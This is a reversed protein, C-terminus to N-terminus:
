RINSPQQKRPKPKTELVYNNLRDVKLNQYPHVVISTTNTEIVAPGTITNGPRLGYGNYIPTPVRERSTSWYINRNKKRANEDIVSNLVEAKKFAPKASIASAKCRFTVIELRAHTLTSGQGYRNEYECFFDRRITDLNVDQTAGSEIPIEVENIQGYHRVDVSFEMKCTSPDVKDEFLLKESRKQLNRLEEQIADKDFPSAMINVQENVHLVDASAAGFACWVAATDGQPIIVEKVGLERATVGMHVPGAGGFAFITFERPDLGKQVTMKRILDAMQFEAITAIGAALEYLNMHLKTALKRLADIAAQKNLKVTGGAFHEPDLYGLVLDADTTTPITGGRDYCVPGPDAGASQPGVRLSNTAPEIWVQSGGGTGLTQVDVKPLFYEYQNVLNKYSVVPAQNLIIGVDFSTGGLDATIINKFQMEKGLYVSGIVGAVPGSDLTLLPAQESRSLSITGGASQSIQMPQEYGITKLSKDLRSLYGSTIPGIYANLVTATTREYEGWKPALEHSCTVYFHPAIKKAIEKIKKEHSPDLFSWLCSIALSNCGAKSLETVALRVESENLPVVVSGFCDVRESVGRILRKPVLPDPKRSEPFHVILKLDRSSLGRSGRMIHMVDEHGRTTILGVTAGQRQIVANTGVTTSHSLRDICPLLHEIEIGIKASAQKLADLVGRSFDDPTSAVKAITLDGNKDILACDTFTGGIDLGCLYIKSSSEKVTTKEM